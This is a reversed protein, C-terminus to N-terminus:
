IVLYIFVIITYLKGTHKFMFYLDNDMNDIMHLWKKKM